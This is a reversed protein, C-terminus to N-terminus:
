EMLGYALHVFLLKHENPELAPVPLITRRTGASNGNFINYVIDIFFTILITHFKRCIVECIKLKHYQGCSNM